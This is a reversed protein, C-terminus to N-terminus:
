SSFPKLLLTIVHGNIAIIINGLRLLYLTNVIAIHLLFLFDKNLM